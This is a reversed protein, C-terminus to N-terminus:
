DERVLCDMAYSNGKNTTITSLGRDLSSLDFRILKIVAQRATPKVTAFWADNGDEVDGKLDVAKAISGRTQGYNSFLRVDALKFEAIPMGDVMKVTVRGKADAVLASKGNMPKACLLDGSWDAFTPASHILIAALVLFKKM